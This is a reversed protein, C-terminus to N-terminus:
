EADDELKAEDRDDVVIEDEDDFVAQRLKKKLPEVTAVANLDVGAASLSNLVDTAQHQSLHRKQVLFKALANASLRQDSNAVSDRLKDVLRGPLLKRQELEAIFKEVSM